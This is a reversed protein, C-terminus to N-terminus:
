RTAAVVFEDPPTALLQHALQEDLREVITVRLDARGGARRRHPPGARHAAQVGVLRITGHGTDLHRQCLLLARIGSSDLFECNELDVVCVSM